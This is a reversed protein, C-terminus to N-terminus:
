EPGNALAKVSLRLSDALLLAGDVREYITEDGGFYPPAGRTGSVRFGAHDSALLEGTTHDLAQFALVWDGAPLSDRVELFPATAGSILDLVQGAGLEISDMKLLPVVGGRPPRLWLRWDLKRPAGRNVVKLSDLFAVSKTLYSGRDMSVTTTIRGVPESGPADGVPSPVDAEDAVAAAAATLPGQSSAPKVAVAVVDWYAVAATSWAKSTSVGGNRTVAAGRLSENGARVSYRVNQQPGPNVAHSSSVVDVVIEGPSGLLVADFITGM